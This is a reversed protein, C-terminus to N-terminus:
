AANDKFLVTVKTGHANEFFVNGSLQRSLNKILRTGLTNKNEFDSPLGAGDDKFILTFGAMQEEIDIYINGKEKEGFAYKCSNTILENLILGLSISTDLSLNIPKAEQLHLQIVKGMPTNSSLIGAALDQIYDKLYIHVMDNKEYLKNHVLAMTKIRNQAQKLQEMMKEDKTDKFQLYLLSSIVQLNNKVRHHIEKLFVEKEKNSTDLVQALHKKNRYSRYAFGAGAIALLAIGATLWQLKRQQKNTQGLQTIEYEKKNTEFAVEAAATQSVAEQEKIKEAEDSAKQMYTYAEEYKGQAAYFSAYARNLEYYRPVINSSDVWISAQSLYYKASDFQKSYIFSKSLSALFMVRYFDLKNEIVIQLGERAIPLTEGMRNLNEFAEAKVNLAYAYIDPQPIYQKNKIVLNAYLLSSDYKKQQQYVYALGNYSTVKEAETVLKIQLPKAYYAKAKEFNPLQAFTNAINLYALINREPHLLSDNLAIAKLCYEIAKPQRNTYGYVNSTNLYARYKTSSNNTKDAFEVARLGWTEAEDFKNKMFCVQIMLIAIEAKRETELKKDAIDMANAQLFYKEAEVPNKSLYERAIEVLTKFKISDIKTTSVVRQLSDMNLQAPCTTVLAIQLVLLLSFNRIFIKNKQCM